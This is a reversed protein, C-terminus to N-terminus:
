FPETLAAIVRVSLVHVWRTEEIALSSETPFMASVILGQEEAFEIFEELREPDLQEFLANADQEAVAAPTADADHAVAILATADWIPGPPSLPEASSMRVVAYPPLLAVSDTEHSVTISTSRDQQLWATLVAIIKSRFKM